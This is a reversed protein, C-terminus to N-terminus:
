LSICIAMRAAGAAAGIAAGAVTSSVIVEQGRPAGAHEGARVSGVGGHAAAACVQQLVTLGLEEKMLVM